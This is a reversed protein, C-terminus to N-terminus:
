RPGSVRNRLRQAFRGAYLRGYHSLLIRYQRMGSSLLVDMINPLMVARFQKNYNTMADILYRSLREFEDPALYDYRVVPQQNISCKGEILGKERLQETIPTGNFPMFFSWNIYSPQVENIFAVTERATEWTEGPYMIIMDAFAKIGYKKITRVARINEAVTVKKNMLKLMTDSGSEYGCVIERVGKEALYAVIEDTIFSARSRVKFRIGIRPDIPDFIERVRKFNVVLLDDMFQISKIGLSLIQEIERHVHAASRYRPQRSVKFCFTCSFPCGRSSIIIDTVGSCGLRWYRGRAYARRLLGRDPVPLRDLDTIIEPPNKVVSGNDRYALGPVTRVDDGATFKLVFEALSEDAEGIFGYRVDPFAEFVTDCDATVEPGGLVIEGSIGWARISRLLCDVTNFSSAYVPLGILSPRYAALAKLLVGMRGSFDDADFIRVDIGYQRLMTGLSILAYPPNCGSLRTKVEPYILAVRISPMSVHKTM